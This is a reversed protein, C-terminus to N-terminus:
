PAAPKGWLANFRSCTADLDFRPADTRLVAPLEKTLSAELERRRKPTMGFSPGQDALPAAVLEALKADVLEIFGPSTFDKGAVALQELDYLDRIAERTHAARVKEARAEGEDLAFSYADRYSGVLDDVLLQKLAVRRHPRMVPRLSVELTVSQKGFESPYPLTWVRHSGNDHHEGDPFPMTVGVSGIIEKLIARIKNLSVVNDRKRKFPAQPVVYDADESMRRFGLDVKSLLTGGKLLLDKGATQALAWILRTLFFDKEIEFPQVRETAATERCLRALLDSDPLPPLTLRTRSSM